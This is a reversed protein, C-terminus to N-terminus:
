NQTVRRAKAVSEEDPLDAAIAFLTGESPKEFSGSSNERRQFWVGILLFILVLGVYLKWSQSNFSLSDVAAYDIEESDTKAGEAKESTVSEDIKDDTKSDEVSKHTIDIVDADEASNETKANAMVPADPQATQSAPQSFSNVPEAIRDHEQDPGTLLNDSQVKLVPLLVREVEFWDRFSSFLSLYYADKINYIWLLFYIVCLFYCLLIIASTGFFPSIMEYVM